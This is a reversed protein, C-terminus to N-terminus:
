ESTNKLRMKRKIYTAAEPVRKEIWILHNDRRAEFPEDSQPRQAIWQFFEQQPYKRYYADLLTEMSATFNYFVWPNKVKRWELIKWAATAADKIKLGFYMRISNVDFYFAQRNRSYLKKITEQKDEDSLGFADDLTFSLEHEMEKKQFHYEFAEAVAKFVWKPVPVTGSSCDKLYDPNCNLFSRFFSTLILFKNEAEHYDSESLQSEEFFHKCIGDENVERKPFCRKPGKGTM